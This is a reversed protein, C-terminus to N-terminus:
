AARLAEIVPATEPRVSRWLEFAAAAQEVLMGLGDAVRAAGQRQAWARFPEFAKGYSLDYCDGGDALLQGPLKVMEGGHGASTANIILDYRDGKLALHTCPRIPGFAKFAEALAEPKWPSRNSVVLERPRQQLLPALIGRTAGGAGLVLVRRGAVAFGLRQLDRLLGEGDTNDGRWGTETRILTNVAGALQARASLAECAELAALKHPATVNLGAYGQERLSRLAAAFADREAEVADYVLAQGTQRAFRAHIFPSKSQAVPYGIVAYRDM